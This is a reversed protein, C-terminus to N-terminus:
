RWHTCSATSKCDPAFSPSGNPALRPSIASRNTSGIYALIDMTWLTFHIFQWGSFVASPSLHLATSARYLVLSVHMQVTVMCMLRIEAVYIHLRLLQLTPSQLDNTLSDLWSQWASEGLFSAHSDSIICCEKYILIVYFACKENTVHNCWASSGTFLVM